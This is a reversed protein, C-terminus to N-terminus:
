SCGVTLPRAWKRSAIDEGVDPTSRDTRGVGNFVCTPCTAKVTGSRISEPSRQTVQTAAPLLRSWSTPPRAHSGVTDHHHTSAPQSSRTKAGPRMSSVASPM